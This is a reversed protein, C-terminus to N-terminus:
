SNRVGPVSPTGATGNTAAQNGLAQETVGGSLQDREAPAPPLVAGQIEKPDFGQLEWVKRAMTVLTNIDLVDKFVGVFSITQNIKGEKGVLDSVGKMRFKIEMRLDEPTMDQFALGYERLQEDSDIFQGDLQFFFRLVQKIGREEVLKSVMGFKELAQSIILQAGRATRGLSGSQPIGQVSRPATVNEIDSQIIQADNYSSSTVDPTTLPEVANMDDTLVIGNPSSVLTDIDVDALSNVKWMRNLILNVNDIRQRRVTTLEYFLSIIPEILGIGYWEMPVPFLSTKVIPRKQHHFPNAIAKVIVSRNAIVIEAEERIGDGDLDYKGWFTLLEVRDKQQKEPNNTGRATSRENRSAYNDTSGSGMLENSDTNGYIPFQGKGQEKLDEHSIWSRVFLGCGEQPESAEPDPFVDLIDLPVVEPRRETVKYEKTEEWGVIRSGLSFGMIQKEERIPTRTWVWDRKVKWFVMFYSTGYLLLQKVYDVMKMYFDAKFLQYSLLNHIRDAKLLEIDDQKEPIVEYYEENGMVTNLVKPLAAEIVQFVIPLFVKSRTPTKQGKSASMYLRYIENWLSEFPQRWTAWKDFKGMLHDLCERQRQAAEEPTAGAFQIPTNSADDAAPAEMGKPDVEPGQEQNQDKYDM